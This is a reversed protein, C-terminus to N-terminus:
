FYAIESKEKRKEMILCKENSKAIRFPPCTSSDDKCRNNCTDKRSSSADKSGGYGKSNSADRCTAKPLGETRVKRSKQFGRQNADDSNIV